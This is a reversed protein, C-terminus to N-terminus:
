AHGVRILIRLIVGCNRFDGTAVELRVGDRLGAPLRIRATKRGEVIGRGSCVFCVSRGRLGSGECSRCQLSVPYPLPLVGGRRAEERSLIVEVDLKRNAQFWHDGSGWRDFDMFLLDVFDGVRSTASKESPSGFFSTRQPRVKAPNESPEDRKTKIHVHAPADSEHLIANYSARAEPDSLVSYAEAIEQFHRTKEPGSIDPHYKKALCRFATRIGCEDATQKVGLTKYHDKKRMTRGEPSLFRM